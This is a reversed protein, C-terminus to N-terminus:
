EGEKYKKAAEIVLAADNLIYTEKFMGYPSKAPYQGDFNTVFQKIPRKNKADYTQKGYLVIDFKGEMTIYQDVM